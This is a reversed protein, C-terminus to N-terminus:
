PLLLSVVMVILVIASAEAKASALVMANACVLLVPALGCGPPIAGCVLPSLMFPLVVPLDSGEGFSALVCPAPV